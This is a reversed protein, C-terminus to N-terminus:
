DFCTASWRAISLNAEGPFAIGYHHWLSHDLTVTESALSTAPKKFEASLLEWVGDLKVRLIYGSPWRASGDLFVDASDIRGMVVAPAATLFHIDAAVNYDTWIEDGALTFPDPFLGWPIPKTSIM